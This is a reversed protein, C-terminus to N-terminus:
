NMEQLKGEKDIILCQRLTRIYGPQVLKSELSLDKTNFTTLVAFIQDRIQSPTSGSYLIELVARAIIDNKYTIVKDEERSFVSVLRLAKEIIPLQIHNDAGLLLAIDDACLLWLPIKLVEADPFDLKTTYIKFNLLPSYQNVKNFAEHYEGYADFVFFHANSPVQERNYFLNQIVRALAFSKGSGTNGFMAFHNSFFKNVSISIPYNEYLPLTGIKLKKVATKDNGIIADLEDKNVVRCNSSFSPKKNVGAYFINNEIEGILTVLATHANINNIEGVMKINNDEFIIHYNILNRVKSIDISLEIEVINEKISIIKGLM